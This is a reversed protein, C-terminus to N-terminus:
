KGRFQGTRSEPRLDLSSPFSSFPQPSRHVERIVPVTVETREIDFFADVARGVSFEGSSLSLAVDQLGTEIEDKFIARAGAVAGVLAGGPGFLLGGAVAGLFFGAKTKSIIEFSKLVALEYAKQREAATQPLSTFSLELRKDLLSFRPSVRSPSDYAPLWEEELAYARDFGNARAWERLGKGIERLEAYRDAVGLNWEPTGADRGQFDGRPGIDFSSDSRVTPRATAASLSSASFGIDFSPDSRVTPADARDPSPSPEPNELTPM